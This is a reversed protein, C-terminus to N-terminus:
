SFIVTEVTDESSSIRKCGSKAQHYMMILWFTKHSSQIATNLTLTLILTFTQGALIKHGVSGKTSDHAQTDHLFIPTSVELDLDGHPSTHGFIVTEVTDESSSIKESDFESQHHPMM